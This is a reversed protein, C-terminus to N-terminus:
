LCMQMRCDDRNDPDTYGLGLATLLQSSTMPHICKSESRPPLPHPVWSEVEHMSEERRDEGADLNMDRELRQSSPEMRRKKLDWSTM